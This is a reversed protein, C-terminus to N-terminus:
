IPLGDWHLFSKAMAQWIRSSALSSHPHVPKHSIRGLRDFPCSRSSFPQLTAAAGGVMMGSFGQSLMEMSKMMPNEFTQSKLDIKTTTSLNELYEINISARSAHGVFSSALNNKLWTTFCKPNGRPMTLSRSVCNVPRNQISNNLSKPEFNFNEVAM